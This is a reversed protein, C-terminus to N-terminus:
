SQWHLFLDIIIAVASFIFLLLYNFMEKSRAISNLVYFLAKKQEESLATARNIAPILDYDRIVQRRKLAISYRYVFFIIYGIVGFYWVPRVWSPAIRQLIILARFSITCLSGLLFASIIIFPPFNRPIKTHTM